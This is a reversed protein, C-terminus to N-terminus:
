LLLTVTGTITSGTKSRIKKVVCPLIYGAGFTANISTNGYGILTVTVIQNDEFTIDFQVTSSLNKNRLLIGKHKTSSNTNLFVTGGDIPIDYTKGLRYYGEHNIFNTAPISM